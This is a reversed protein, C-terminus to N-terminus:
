ELIDGMVGGAISGAAGRAGTTDVNNAEAAKISYLFKTRLVGPRAVHLWTVM